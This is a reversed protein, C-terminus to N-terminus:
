YKRNPFEAKAVEQPYIGEVTEIRKPLSKGAVLDKTAQMLQPGLLPNCEIVVNQKGAIMAEFAGKQADFAADAGAAPAPANQATAPGAAAMALAAALAMRAWRRDTAM